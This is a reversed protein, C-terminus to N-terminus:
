SDCEDGHETPSACSGCLGCCHRWVRGIEFGGRRLGCIRRLLWGGCDALRCRLGGATEEGREAMVEGVIHLVDRSPVAHIPHGATGREGEGNVGRIACEVCAQHTM